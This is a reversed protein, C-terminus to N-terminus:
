LEVGLAMELAQRRSRAVRLVKGDRLIVAHDGHTLPQVERIKAVHVITSRHIRVFRRADLQSAVDSIRDRGKYARAAAHVVVYNDEAEVFEIDEVRVFHVRNWQRVALHGDMAVAAASTSSPAEARTDISPVEADGACETSPPPPIATSMAPPAAMPPRFVVHGITVIVGYVVLAAPFYEAVGQMTSRALVVAGGIASFLGSVIGWGRSHAPRATFAHVVGILGSLLWTAGVLLGLVVATQLPERLCLLGVLVSFAGAVGLLVRGAAGDDRWVAAVLQLVGAVVLQIAFLWALVVVSIDPWALVLVGVVVSVAGTAITPRSSRAASAHPGADPDASAPEPSAM